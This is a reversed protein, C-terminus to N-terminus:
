DDGARPTKLCVSRAAARIFLSIETPSRRQGFRIACLVAIVASTFV